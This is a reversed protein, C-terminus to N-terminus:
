MVELFLRPNYFDHVLESRPDADIAEMVPTKLEGSSALIFDGASLASRAVGNLVVMDGNGLTLFATGGYEGLAAEVQAFSTFGFASLDIRDTGAVFDGIVDGGTGRTFVFTDAGAEGFLVDNGAGGDLIDNGAGGLLWNSTASGTIRNNLENGVGFPTNGGLVLNETNAYLYYGAGDITAYVTDIGGNAAEFTLDDPTDVYYSDDGAGGDMLDYDGLGSDGRLVDNGAGGVLIDTHFGSGGILTDDGDEGYLADAETGGDLTDNGIGGVLYDIGADGFLQDNGDQGFLSDVGGGGRVVDAGAGAILLNSGSNGLITNALENGVGFLDGSGTLTLNELDAYLYFNGSSIVTDTGGGGDEFVLDDLGDVLYTDDGAGGYLRDSGGGGSLVNNQANGRIINNLSNGTGSVATGVLNLHEVNAGIVYDASSEVLDVGEDALETVVDRSDDVFYTDNGVGGSMVDVGTGGDLRDDGVNGDLTDGGAGGSLSNDEANGRITNALENGTGVVASGTLTLHEVNAGLAYNISSEVRDIGEGALETVVDGANDVIYTDHDAGGTMIDAGAGGDLFDNGSEGRLQDNGGLGYLINNQSNGRVVNNLENGTGVSGGILTLNEIHLGLTYSTSAEVLDTGAGALETITDSENDVVYIDNGSGGEMADVGIGGDLRDDGADGVLIDNGAGGSLINNSANGRITNALDNGTGSLAGGILTLNELHAGLAYDISSEVHDAGHGALETITDSISDVIYRDDGAGGFMADAGTGGDLTDNGSGSRLTDAGSGGQLLANGTSSSADILNEIDNGIGTFASTGSYILDEVNATLAYSSLQTRVTDTGHGFAEVVNDGAGVIYTDNGDLGIFTDAEATGAFTENRASLDVLQLRGGNSDAVTIYSGDPSIHIQDGVGIRNHWGSAALNFQDTITWTRVDYKALTGNSLFVFLYQGHPDFALGDVTNTITVRRVFDLSLDYINLYYTGMFQAVLGARESIAQHGFNFGSVAGGQYSDGQAVIRGSRDDYIFLPSNSIGPEAILSLHGDEVILSSYSSYYGAGALPSFTGTALDFTMNPSGTLIARQGNVIEVDHFHGTDYSQLVTGNSTSVRHLRGTNAGTAEIALLFSGDESLSMSALSAGVAWTAVLSHSATNFVEITGNDRGVYILAGDPSFMTSRANAAVLNFVSYATTGTYTPM